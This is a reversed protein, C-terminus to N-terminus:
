CFYKKDFEEFLSLFEDNNEKESVESNAHKPKYINKFWDATANKILLYYAKRIVECSVLTDSSPWEKPWGDADNNFLSICAM